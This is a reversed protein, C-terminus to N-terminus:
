GICLSSSAWLRCSLAVSLPDDEWGFLGELANKPDSSGRDTMFENLIEKSLSKTVVIRTWCYWLISHTM